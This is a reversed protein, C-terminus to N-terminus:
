PEMQNLRDLIDTSIKDMWVPEHTYFAYSETVHEKTVNHVKYVIHYSSDNLNLPRLGAHQLVKQNAEALRLDFLIDTFEQPQILNSPVDPYKPKCGFVMMMLGLMLLGKIKM